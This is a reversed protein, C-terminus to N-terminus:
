KGAQGSFAFLHDSNQTHVVMSQIRNHIESFGDLDGWEMEFEEWTKGDYFQAGWETIAVVENQFILVSKKRSEECNRYICNSSYNALYGDGPIIEYTRFFDESILLVFSAIDTVRLPVYLLKDDYSLFDGDKVEFRHRFYQPLSTFFKGEDSLVDFFETKSYEARRDDSIYFARSQHIFANVIYIVNDDSTQRILTGNESLSLNWHGCSYGEPGHYPYGSIYIKKLLNNANPPTELM